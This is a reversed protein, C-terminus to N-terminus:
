ITLTPAANTRHSASGSAMWCFALIQHHNIVPPFNHVLVMGRPVVSPAKHHLAAFTPFVPDCLRLPSGPASHFFEGIFDILYCVRQKKGRFDVIKDTIEVD